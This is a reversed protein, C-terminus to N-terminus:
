FMQKHMQKTKCKGGKDEDLKIGRHKISSNIPKGYIRIMIYKEKAKERVSSELNKTM